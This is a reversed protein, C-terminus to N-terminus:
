SFKYISKKFHTLSTFDNQWIYGKALFRKFADAINYALIVIAGNDRTSIAYKKLLKVM